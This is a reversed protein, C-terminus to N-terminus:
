VAAVGTLRVRKVRVVPAGGTAAVYFRRGDGAVWTRGAVDAMPRTRLSVASTLVRGDDPAGHLELMTLAHSAGAAIPVQVLRSSVEVWPHNRLVDATRRLGRAAYLAIGALVAAGIAPVLWPLPAPDTGDGIVVADGPRGPEYAVEVTQGVHFRRVRQDLVADGSRAVGDADVFDFTIRGGIRGAGLNHLDVATITAPARVGDRELAVGSRHARWLWGALVALLVALLAAAACGLWRRHLNRRTAPADAAAGIGPLTTSGM